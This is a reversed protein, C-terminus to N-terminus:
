KGACRKELESLRNRFSDDKKGGDEAMRVARRDLQLAQPCKGLQVAVEALTDVISPNWPALDLARNAFPLAERARGSTVLLWALQNQAQANSDNLVIAKRLAAEKEARDPSYIALVLWSRWDSPRQKALGRLNEVSPPKFDDDTETGIVAVNIPDERLAEALHDRVLAKQAQKDDPWRRRMALLWLHLDASSFASEVNAADSEAEVKWMAFRGQGRYSTLAGDLRRMAGADNPDLDTFAAKWAAAPDEGDSLRKQYAAFAQGRTNWLSM